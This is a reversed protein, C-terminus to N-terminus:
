HASSVLAGGSGALITSGILMNGLVKVIKPNKSSLMSNALTKYVRLVFFGGVLTVISNEVSIQDTVNSPANLIGSFGKIDQIVSSISIMVLFSTGTIMAREM